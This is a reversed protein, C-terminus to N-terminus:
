AKVILFYFISFIFLISPPTNPLEFFISLLFFDEYFGLTLIIDADSESFFISGFLILKFPLDVPNNYEYSSYLLTKDGFSNFVGLLFFTVM